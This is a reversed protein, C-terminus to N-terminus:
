RLTSASTNGHCSICTAKTIPQFDHAHAMPDTSEYNSLVNGQANIVHCHRCDALQPQLLHPRHSFETFHRRSTDRPVVNWNIAYHEGSTDISHCSACVKLSNEALINLLLGQRPVRHTTASAAVDIVLRLLEDAHGRPRYRVSLTADDIFWTGEAALDSPPTMQPVPRPTPITAPAESAIEGTAPTAKALPNAVLEVQESGQIRKKQQPPETQPIAHPTPQDAKSWWTIGPVGAQDEAPKQKALPNEVLLESRVQPYIASAAAMVPRARGRDALESSLEPLWRRRAERFLAPPLQRLILKLREESLKEGSVKALRSRIVGSSDEALDNLLRKYSWVVTAVHESPQAQAFDFTPGLLELAAAAEDDAMLLTRVVPPLTGDFDGQAATPWSGIDHGAIRLKEVDLTPVSFAVLGEMGAAEIPQTHCKACSQEFSLLRKVDRPADDEHCQSCAWTTQKTPFHKDQHSVHDFAIRSRRPPLTRRFEPHGHAFSEFAQVHCAQCQQDTLQTLNAQIGHHERHCTSCAVDGKGSLKVRVLDAINQEGAIRRTTEALAHPPVNHAVMALESGLSQEHCSLCRTSQGHILKHNGTAIALWAIPDTEAAEHCTACRNAQPVKALAQEHAHSLPGPQILVHRWTSGLAVALLGLTAFVCTLVFVGRRGRLSLRPRCKPTNRCVGWRSPGLPCDCDAACQWLQTSRNYDKAPLSM